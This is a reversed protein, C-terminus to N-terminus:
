QCHDAARPLGGLWRGGVQDDADMDKVLDGLRHRENLLELAEGPLPYEDPHPVRGARVRRLRHRPGAPPALGPQAVAEQKESLHAHLGLHPQSASWAAVAEAAQLLGDLHATAVETPSPVLLAALCPQLDVQSRVRVPREYVVAAVAG